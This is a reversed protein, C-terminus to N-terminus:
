PIQAGNLIQLLHAVHPSAPNAALFRRGLTVAAARDGAALLADVQLVLAEDSLVSTPFARNYEDLQRLAARADGRALSARVRDLSAVELDLMRPSSVPHALTGRGDGQFPTPDESASTGRVIRTPAVGLTATGSAKRSKTPPAAPAVIPVSPGAIPMSGVAAANGASLLPGAPPSAKETIARGQEEAIAPPAELALGRGPAIGPSVPGALEPAALTASKTLTPGFSPASVAVGGLAVITALGVWKAFGGAAAGVVAPSGTATAASAASAVDAAATSAASSVAGVSLGLAALTRKFGRDHGVDLRASALVGREFETGTEMLRRTTM